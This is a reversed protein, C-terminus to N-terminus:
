RKEEDYVSSYVVDRFLEDSWKAFEKDLETVREVDRTQLTLTVSLDDIAAKPGHGVEVERKMVEEVFDNRQRKLRFTFTKVLANASKVWRDVPIVPQAAQKPNVPLKTVSPLRVRSANIFDEHMETLIGM